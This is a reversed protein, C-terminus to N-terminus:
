EVDSIKLALSLIGSIWLSDGDTLSAESLLEKEDILIRDVVAEPLKTYSPVRATCTARM